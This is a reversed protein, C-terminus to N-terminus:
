NVQGTGTDSGAARSDRRSDRPGSTGRLRSGARLHSGHRLYLHLHDPLQLVAPYLVAPLQLLDPLYLLDSLQLLDPLQLDPLLVLLLVEVQVLGSPMGLRRERGDAAWELGPRGPLPVQASYDENGFSWNFPVKEAIRM